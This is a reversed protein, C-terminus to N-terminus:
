DRSNTIFESYEKKASAMEQERKKDNLYREKASYANENVPIEYGYMKMGGELPM